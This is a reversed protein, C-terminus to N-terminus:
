PKQAQIEVRHRPDNDIVCIKSGELINKIRISLVSVKELMAVTYNDM